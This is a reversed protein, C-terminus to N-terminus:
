KCHFTFLVLFFYTKSGNSWEGRRGENRREEAEEADGRGREQEYLKSNSRAQKLQARGFFLLSSSWM